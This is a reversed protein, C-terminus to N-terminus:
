ALSSRPLHTAELWHHEIEEISLGNNTYVNLRLAIKKPAVGFSERLFRSFFAVMNVDSNCFIVVNREKSGEAWYLM